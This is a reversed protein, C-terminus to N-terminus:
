RWEFAIFRYFIVLFGCAVKIGILLNIVILYVNKHVPFHLFGGLFVCMVATLVIGIYVFKELVVVRNITIDHIAYIMYRCMFFSALMVGGQFGGGPSIHGNIILYASFILLVPCIMRITFVTIDSSNKDRRKGSLVLQEQYFSLHIVAITSVLLMLAEIVTDYMRYGLYIATVANEGGVDHSFSAIYQDKLFANAGGGPICYCFLIFLVVAFCVPLFKVISGKFKPPLYVKGAISYYKEFSVIFIITSFASIVAEAMAVDPAAFLFFCASSLVSFIALYIILRFLKQEAIIILACLIWFFLLIHIM